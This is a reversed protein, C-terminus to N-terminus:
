CRIVVLEALNMDNPLRERKTISLESQRALGEIRVTFDFALPYTLVTKITDLYRLESSEDAFSDVLVITGDNKCVRSMEEVATAQDIRTSFLLVALVCDFSNSAFPLTHVDGEIPTEMGKAQSLMRRSIDLSIHSEAPTGVRETRGTGAGVELVTGDNPLEEIAVERWIRDNGRYLVNMIRDFRGSLFGYLNRLYQSRGVGM